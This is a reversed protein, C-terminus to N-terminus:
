LLVNCSTDTIKLKWLNVLSDAIETKGKLWSLWEKSHLSVGHFHATIEEDRHFDTVRCNRCVCESVVVGPIIDYPFLLALFYISSHFFHVTKKGHCAQSALVKLFTLPM